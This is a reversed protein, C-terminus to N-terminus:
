NNIIYISHSLILQMFNQKSKSITNYKEIEFFINSFSRKGGKRMLNHMHMHSQIIQTLGKLTQSSDGIHCERFNFIENWTTALGISTLESNVQKMIQCEVYATLADRSVNTVQDPCIPGELVLTQNPLLKYGMAIFIKEADLLNNKIEHQYFGSYM